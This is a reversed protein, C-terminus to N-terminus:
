NNQPNLKKSFLDMTRQAKMYSIYKLVGVNIPITSNIDFAGLEHSGLGMIRPGWLM